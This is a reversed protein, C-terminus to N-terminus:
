FYEKSHFRATWDRYCIRFAPARGRAVPITSGDRLVLALSGDRKSQVEQVHCFAVWYSKHVQMGPATKLLAVVAGFRERIHTKRDPLHLFVYHEDAEVLKIENIAIMEGALPVREARPRLAPGADEHFGPPMQRSQRAQPEYALRSFPRQKFKPVVIVALFLEFGLHITYNMLTLEAATALNWIPLTFLERYAWIIVIENGLIAIFTILPIPVSIGNRTREGIEVLVLGIGIITLWFVISLCLNMVIVAPLTLPVRLVIVGIYRMINACFMMIFMAFPDTMLSLVASRDVSMTEGNVFYLTVPKVHNM